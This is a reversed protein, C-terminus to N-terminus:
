ALELVNRPIYFVQFMNEKIDYSKSNSPFLFPNILQEFKKM